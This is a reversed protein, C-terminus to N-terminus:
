ETVEMTGTEIYGNEGIFTKGEVVDEVKASLAGSAGRYYYEGEYLLAIVEQYDAKTEFIDLDTNTAINDRNINIAFAREDASISLAYGTYIGYGAPNTTNYKSYLLEFPNEQELNMKYVGYRSVYNNFTNDSYGLTAILYNEGIDTYYHAAGSDLYGSAYSSHILASTDINKILTSTAEIRTYNIDLKYYENGRFYHKLDRFIYGDKQTNDSSASGLTISLAGKMGYLSNLIIIAANGSSTYVVLTKETTNGFFMIPARVTDGFNWGGDIRINTEIYSLQELERSPESDSGITYKFEFIAVTVYSSYRSKTCIAFRTGMYIDNNDNDFCVRLNGYSDISSINTELHIANTISTESIAWKTNQGTGDQFNIKTIEFMHIKLNESSKKTSLILNYREIGAWEMKSTLHLGVIENYAINNLGLDDLTYESIIHDGELTGTSLDRINYDEIRIPYNTGDYNIYVRGETRDKQTDRFLAIKTREKGVMSLSSKHIEGISTSYIKEVAGIDYSPKGSSEDITLVGEILQNNVWASKGQLIDYPTANGGQGLTGYLKQGKAYATYGSAIKDATATADSTNVYNPDTGSGGSTSIARINSAMTSFSDSASTSVGKDTIAEAVQNKGNSVSTFLDNMNGNLTSIAGQVDQFNANVADAIAQTKQDTYNKQAALGEEIDESLKEDLAQVDTVKAFSSFDQNRIQSNTYEKAQSLISQDQQDIYSKQASEKTDHYDQVYKKTAYEEAAIGGLHNSDNALNADTRGQSGAKAKSIEESVKAM